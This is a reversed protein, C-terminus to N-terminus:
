ANGTARCVKWRRLGRQYGPIPVNKHLTERACTSTFRKPDTETHSSLAVANSYTSGSCIDSPVRWVNPCKSIHLSLCCRRWCRDCLTRGPRVIPAGTALHQPCTAHYSRNCFNCGRACKSCLWCTTCVRRLLNTSEHFLYYLQTDRVLSSPFSVM